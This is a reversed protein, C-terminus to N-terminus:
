FAMGPIISLDLGMLSKDYIIKLVQGQIEKTIVMTRLNASSFYCPSSLSVSTVSGSVVM